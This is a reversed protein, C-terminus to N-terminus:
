VNNPMAINIADSAINNIRFRATGIHACTNYVSQDHATIPVNINSTTQVVVLRIFNIEPIITYTKLITLMITVAINYRVLADIVAPKVVTNIGINVPTAAIIKDVVM